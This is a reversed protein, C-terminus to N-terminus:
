SDKKLADQPGIRRSHSSLWSFDHFVLVLHWPLSLLLTDASSIASPDHWVSTFTAAGKVEDKQGERGNKDQDQGKDQAEAPYPHQITSGEAPNRNRLLLQWGAAM